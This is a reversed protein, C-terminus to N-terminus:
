ESDDSKLEGPTMGFQRKFATVFNSVHNYGALYAAEGISIGEHMLKAKVVALRRTRIYDTVTLGLEQRFKRQLVSKSLAAHHCITDLSLETHLHQEIFSITAAISKGYGSQSLHSSQNLILADNQRCLETIISMACLESQLHALPQALENSALIEEAKQIMTASPQWTVCALHNALLQDFVPLVLPQRKSLREFWLNELTINVKRVQNGQTLCRRFSSYHKVCVAIATPGGVASCRYPHGDYAFELEGELLLILIVGERARHFVNADVLEESHGGEIVMGSPYQHSIFNGKVLPASSGVSEHIVESDPKRQDIKTLVVNRSM